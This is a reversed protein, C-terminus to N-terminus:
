CILEAVHLIGSLHVPKIPIDAISSVNEPEPPEVNLVDPTHQVERQEAFTLQGCETGCASVRRGRLRQWCFRRWKAVLKSSSECSCRQAQM